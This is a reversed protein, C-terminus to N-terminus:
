TCFQGVGILFGFSAPRSQPSLSIGILVRVCVSLSVASLGHILSTILISCTNERRLGLRIYVPRLCRLMTGVSGFLLLQWSYRPKTHRPWAFTKRPMSCQRAMLCSQCPAATHCSVTHDTLFTFGHFIRRVVNKQDSKPHHKKRRKGKRCTKANPGVLGKDRILDVLPAWM